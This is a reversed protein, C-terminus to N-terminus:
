LARSPTAATGGPERKPAAALKGLLPLLALVGHADDGCIFAM